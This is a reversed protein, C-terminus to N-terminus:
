PRTISVTWYRGVDALARHGREEGNGGRGKCKDMRGLRGAGQGRGRKIPSNV